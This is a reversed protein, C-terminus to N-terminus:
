LEDRVGDCIRTLKRCFQDQSEELDLESNEKFYLIVEDEFDEVISECHFQLGKNLDPDQVMEYEGFRPNMAGNVILKMAELKGTEKHRAQAYDKMSGCVTEMLEMMHLESGAYKVSSLKQKGDADIRYSGVDIKKRPDVESIAAHLENVLSRCVACKVVQSKPPQSSLVGCIALSLLTVFQFGISSM